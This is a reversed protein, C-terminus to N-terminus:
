RPAPRCRLWLPCPSAVLHPCSAVMNEARSEEAQRKGAGHQRAGFRGRRGVLLDHDADAPRIELFFAPLGVLGRDLGSEVLAAGAIDTGVRLTRRGLLQRVDLAQDRAAGRREDDEGLVRIGNLRRDGLGLGLANRDHAIVAQDLAGADEVQGEVVALNAANLRARDLLRRRFAIVDEDLTRRGIGIGVKEMGAIEVHQLWRDVRAGDLHDALFIGGAPQGLVGLAFHLLDQGLGVVLDIRHNGGVVAGGAARDCCQLGLTQGADRDRALIAVLGGQVPDRSAQLRDADPLVRPQEARRCGLGGHRQGLARRRVLQRVDPFPVLSRLLGGHVRDEQRGDADGLLIEVHHYLGTPDGLVRDALADVWGLCRGGALLGKGAPRDAAHRGPSAPRDSPDELILSMIDKAWDGAAWLPPALSRFLASSTSRRRSAIIAATAATQTPKSRRVPPIKRVARLRHFRATCVLTTPMMVVPMTSTMTVRCISRDTPETSPKVPMIMATSCAWINGTPAPQFQAADSASPRTSPPTIPAAWPQHIAWRPTGDKMTVRPPRSIKRPRAQVAVSPWVTAGSSSVNWSIPPPRRPEIPASQLQTTPM